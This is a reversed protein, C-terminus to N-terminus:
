GAARVKTLQARVDAVLAALGDTPHAWLEDAVNPRADSNRSRAGVTIASVPIHDAPTLPRPDRHVLMASRPSGRKLANDNPHAAAPRNFGASSIDAVASPPDAGLGTASVGVSASDLSSWQAHVPVPSGLRSSDSGAKVERAAARGIIDLAGTDVPARSLLALPPAVADPPHIERRM